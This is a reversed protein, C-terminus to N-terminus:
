LVANSYQLAERIYKNLKLLQQGVPSYWITLVELYPTQYCLSHMLYLSSFLPVTHLKGTGFEPHFTLCLLPSKFLIEFMVICMLIHSSFLLINKIWLSGLNIFKFRSHQKCIYTYANWGLYRPSNWWRYLYHTKKEEFDQKVWSWSGLYCTFLCFVFVWVFM